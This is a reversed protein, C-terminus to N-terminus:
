QSVAGPTVGLATADDRQKWGEQKLEWARRRRERWDLRAEQTSM